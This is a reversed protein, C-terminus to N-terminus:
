QNPELLDSKGISISDLLVMEIELFILLTQQLLITHLHEQLLRSQIQIQIPMLILPLYNLDLIAIFRIHSKKRM